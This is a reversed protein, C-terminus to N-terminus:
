EAPELDEPDLLKQDLLAKEVQALAQKFEPYLGVALSVGKRTPVWEDEADGPVFVRIDILRHGRFESLSFFLTERANKTVKAIVESM